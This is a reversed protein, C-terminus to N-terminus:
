HPAQVEQPLNSCFRPLTNTGGPDWIFGFWHLWPTTVAPQACPVLSFFYYPVKQCCLSFIKKMETYGSLHATFQVLETGLHNQLHLFAQKGLRVYPVTRFPNVLVFIKWHLVCCPEICKIFIIWKNESFWKKFASWTEMGEKHMWCTLHVM